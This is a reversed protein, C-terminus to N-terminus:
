NQNVKQSKYPSIEFYNLPGLFLRWLLQNPTIVVSLVRKNNTAIVGIYVSKRALAPQYLDRQEFEFDTVM